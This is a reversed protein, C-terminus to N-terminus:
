IYKNPNFDGGLNDEKARMEEKLLCNRVDVHNYSDLCVIKIRCMDFFTVISVYM